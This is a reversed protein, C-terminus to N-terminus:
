AGVSWKKRPNQYKKLLDSIAEVFLDTLSRDEEVALFKLNKILKPEVRFSIQKKEMTGGM